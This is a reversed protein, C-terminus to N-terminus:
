DELTGELQRRGHSFVRYIRKDQIMERELFSAIERALALAEDQGTAEWARVLGTIALGNHSSLVKTDTAPPVRQQRAEFLKQRAEVMPDDETVRHLVSTGSEFNGGRRVGYAQCFEQGQEQGLVEGIQEPTWVYFAGEEGESDADISSFLGGSDDRLERVMWTITEDIVAKFTHDQTMTFASAYVALLQANDYLMKEFHPILWREDVSYRAFGGGLHDYIGGAAMARAQLLFARRFPEQSDFRGINGFLAHVASNPFKPAAGIGGHTGDFNRLLAHGARILLEQTLSAGDGDPPADIQKLGDVFRHGQQVLEGKRSAYTAAVSRLVRVFGPRGLSDDPPFYTGLHIPEGTPLCFASLP